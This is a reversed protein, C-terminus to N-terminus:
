VKRGHRQSREGDGVEENRGQFTCTCKSGEERQFTAGEGKTASTGNTKNEGEENKEISLVRFLKCTVINIYEEYTWMSKTLGYCLPCLRHPNKPNELGIKIRVGPPERGHFRIPVTFYLKARQTSGSLSPHM